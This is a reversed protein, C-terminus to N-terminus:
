LPGPGSRHIEDMTEVLLVGAPFSLPQWPCLFVETGRVTPSLSQRPRLLPAAGRVTPSLPQWPRLHPAAGRVAPLKRALHVQDSKLPHVQYVWHPGSRSRPCPYHVQYLGEFHVQDVATSKAMTEVLLVGSPRSLPEWPRLLPAAGRASPSLPEWPRLLAEVQGEPLPDSCACRSTPAPKPTPWPM